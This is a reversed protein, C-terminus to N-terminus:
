LTNKKKKFFFNLKIMQQGYYKVSVDSDIYKIFFINLKEDITWLM